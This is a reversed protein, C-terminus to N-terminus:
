IPMYRDFFLIPNLVINFVCICLTKLTFEGSKTPKNREDDIAWGLSREIGMKWRTYKMDRVTFLILLKTYRNIPCKAINDAALKWASMKLVLLRTFTSLGLKGDPSISPFFVDNPTPKIKDAQWVEVGKASGAAIAAGLATTESMTPRVSLFQM